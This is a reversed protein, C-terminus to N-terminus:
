RRLGVFVLHRRPRREIQFSAVPRSSFNAERDKMRRHLRLPHEPVALFGCHAYCRAATEDIADVVVLRAAAEEGARVAKGLAEALLLGGIGQGQSDSHVALRALLVVGVPYAPLGRVLENPADARFVSGMTLSFYGAVKEGNIPAFARASDMRQSALAHDVLWSNLEVQGSQFNSM